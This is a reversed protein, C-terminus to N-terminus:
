NIKSDIIRAYDKVTFLISIVIFLVRKKILIVLNKTRPNEKEFTYKKYM